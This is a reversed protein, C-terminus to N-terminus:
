DLRLALKGPQGVEDGRWGSEPDRSGDGERRFERAVDVFRIRSAIESVHHSRLCFTPLLSNKQTLLWSFCDKPLRGQGEKKMEQALYARVAEM